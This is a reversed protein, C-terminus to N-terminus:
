ERVLPKQRLELRARYFGGKFPEYTVKGPSLLPHELQSHRCGNDLLPIHARLPPFFARGAKTKAVHFVTAM